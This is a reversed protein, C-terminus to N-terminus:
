LTDEPYVSCCKFATFGNESLTICARDACNSDSFKGFVAPGSGSMLTYEAENKAMIEKIKNIEDISIVQEFINYLPIDGRGNNDLSEIMEHYIHNYSDIFNNFKIDLNFYAEPTSVRSNGIAVVYTDSLRIDLHKLREGRGRCLYIGGHLCFPVDSGIMESLIRLDEDNALMYIKNLARLTAAADSSGGGLGAGIPIKKKIEVFTNAKLNFYKLYEMITRYVINDENTPLTTDDTIITISTEDSLNSSVTITDCLSVSHMVSLINHFGDDRKGTVDLFLNIKAYAKEVVTM